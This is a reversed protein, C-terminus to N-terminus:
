YQAAQMLEVSRGDPDRVVACLGSETRRPARIVVAGLRQVGSMTATLDTVAFGLRTNADVSTKEAPYLEFVMDGLQASFHEPGNGHKEETFTIGLASYFALLRSVDASKLVLLNLFTTKMEIRM